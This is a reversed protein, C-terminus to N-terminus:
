NKPQPKTRALFTSYSEWIATSEHQHYLSSATDLVMARRYNDALRTSYWSPQRPSTLPFAGNSVFDIFLAQLPRSDLAILVLDDAWLLHSILEGNLSPIELGLVENLDTSLDLLYIKFLEPSMPHGQETGILIDIAESIKNLLKLKATSNQYM